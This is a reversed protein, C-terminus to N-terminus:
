AAAERLKRQIAVDQDAGVQARALLDELEARPWIVVGDDDAIVLDGPAIEVSGITIPVDVAGAGGKTPALPTVGRSWVPLGFRLVEESDRILGTTVLGITGALVFELAINGGLTARESAEHGAVVVVSGRPPRLTAADKVHTNDDTSSQITFAPGIARRGRVLPRIADTLVGRGERADSALASALWDPYQNM